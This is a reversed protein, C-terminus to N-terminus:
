YQGNKLERKRIFVAPNGQYIGFAELDKNAVSGVTLISHEQATVGAAVFSRAGIWVGDEIVIPATVLRFCPDNRDHNGSCLIAGQSICVHNGITIATINDIWCNEGLWVHDGMTLKWPYKIQVGPRIRAEKGIRAGFQVLVWKRFESFPILPNRILLTSCIFWLWQKVNGAGISKAYDTNNADYHTFDVKM